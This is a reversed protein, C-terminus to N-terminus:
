SDQNMNVAESPTMGFQAKFTRNFTRMDTVGCSLAIESVPLQMPNRSLMQRARLLRRERILGAVTLGRDAFARYLTARSCTLGRAVMGPTLEWATLRADIYRCAAVFLGDRCSRPANAAQIAPLDQLTAIALSLTQELMIQKQNPALEAIRDALLRMQCQLFPALQSTTLAQAIDCARPLRDCHYGRLTSRRLTLHVGRHDTWNVRSPASPDYVFFQDSASTHLADDGQVAVRRGALVLGLELDDIGDADVQKATRQGSVAASSYAFFNGRESVIGHARASFTTRKDPGPKDAAFNYFVRERWFDYADAGVLGATSISFYAPRSPHGHDPLWHGEEPLWPWTDACWDITTRGTNRYDSM